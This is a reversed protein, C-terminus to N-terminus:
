HGLNARLGGASISALLYIPRHKPARLCISPRWLTYSPPTPLASVDLNAPSCIQRSAATVQASINSGVVGFWCCLVCLLILSKRM